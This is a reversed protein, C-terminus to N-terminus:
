FEPHRFASAPTLKRSASALSHPFWIYHPSDSQQHGKFSALRELEVFTEKTVALQNPSLCCVGSSLPPGTTHISHQTQAAALPCTVTPFRKPLTDVDPSHPSSLSTSSIPPPFVSPPSLTPFCVRGNEFDIKFFLSQLFSCWSNTSICKGTPIQSFFPSQWFPYM